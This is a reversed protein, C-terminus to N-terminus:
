YWKTWKAKTQVKVQLIDGGVKAQICALFVKEFAAIAAAGGSIIAAAAAAVVGTALCAEIDKQIDKPTKLTVVLTQVVNLHKQQTKWGCCFKIPPFDSSCTKVCKTRTKPLTTIDRYKAIVRRYVDKKLVADKADSEAVDTSFTEGIEIIDAANSGSGLTGIDAAPAKDLYLAGGMDYSDTM